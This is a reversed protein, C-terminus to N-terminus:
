RTPKERRASDKKKKSDNDAADTPPTIVVYPTSGARETAKLPPPPPVPRFKKPVGPVAPVSGEQDRRFNQTRFNGEAVNGFHGNGTDGFHGAQRDGYQDPPISPDARQEVPAANACLTAAMGVLGAIISSHTVSM